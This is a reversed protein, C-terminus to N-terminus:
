GNERSHFYVWMHIQSTMIVDRTNRMDAYAMHPALHVLKSGPLILRSVGNSGKNIRTSQINQPSSASIIEFMWRIINGAFM